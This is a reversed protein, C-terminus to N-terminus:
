AGACVARRLTQRCAQNCKFSAPLAHFGAAANAADTRFRCITALRAKYTVLVDYDDRLCTYARVLKVPDTAKLLACYDDFDFQLAPFPPM